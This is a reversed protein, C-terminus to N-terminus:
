TSNFDLLERNLIIENPIELEKCLKNTFEALIKLQDYVICRKEELSQGKFFTMYEKIDEKMEDAVEEQQEKSVYGALNWLHNYKKKQSTIMALVQQLKNMGFFRKQANYRAALVPNTTTQMQGGSIYKYKPIRSEKLAKEREEETQVRVAYTNIQKEM